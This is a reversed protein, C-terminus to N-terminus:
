IAMLEDFRTKEYQMQQVSVANTSESAFCHFALGHLFAERYKEPFKVDDEVSSVKFAEVEEYENPASFKLIPRKRLMEVITANAMRIMMADNWRYDSADVDSLIMTRCETILDQLKM